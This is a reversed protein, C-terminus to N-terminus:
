GYFRDWIKQISQSLTLPDFPKTIVDLAGAKKYEEIEKEQVRATMFIVPTNKFNPLKRIEKLTSPGDLGPLMVDLLLLDPMFAHIVNLADKGTDCTKVTFNGIDSLAIQAITQIDKEDEVYLIKKLDPKMM